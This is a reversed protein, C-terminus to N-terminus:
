CLDAASHSVTVTGLEPLTVLTCDTHFCFFRLLVDLEPGRELAVDRGVSGPSAESGRVGLLSPILLDWVGCQTLIGRGQFLGRELSPAPTSHPSLVSCPCCVLWIRWSVGLAHGWVQVGVVCCHTLTGLPLPPGSCRCGPASVPTEAPRLLPM